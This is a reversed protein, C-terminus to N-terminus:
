ITLWETSKQFRVLTLTRLILVPRSCDIFGIIPFDISWDIVISAKNTLQCRNADALRHGNDIIVCFHDCSMSQWRNANFFRPIGCTGAQVYVYDCYACVNSIQIREGSQKYATAHNWFDVVSVCKSVTNQLFALWCCM